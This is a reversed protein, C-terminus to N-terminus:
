AVRKILKVNAFKYEYLKVKELALLIHVVQQAPDGV